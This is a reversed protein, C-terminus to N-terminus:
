PCKLQQRNRHLHLFVIRSIPSYVKRAGSPTARRAMRPILDGHAEFLYISLDASPPHVGQLLTQLSGPNSSLLIPHHCLLRCTNRTRSNQRSRRRLYKLTSQSQLHLHGSTVKPSYVRLAKESPLTCPPLHPLTLFVDTPSFTLTIFFLSSHRLMDSTGLPFPVVPCCLYQVTYVASSIVGDLGYDVRCAVNLGYPKHEPIRGTVGGHSQLGVLAYRSKM